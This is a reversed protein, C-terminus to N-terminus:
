GNDKRRRQREEDIQRDHMDSGGYDKAYIISGDNAYVGILKSKMACRCNYVTEGPAHPDGPYRLKNGNGDTFRANEAVEQGDMSLHWDRTREDGTAIWIKHMIAGQKTLDDYRDQLARNETETVLTRATRVASVKNNKVIPLIRKSIQPISEGLLLGQLVSMNISRTNWARDKIVNLRRQPLSRGSLGDSTLIPMALGLALVGAIPANFNRLYVGEVVANSYEMAVANMQALLETTRDVMKQFKPDNFTAERLASQWADLAGKKEEGTAALYADYLRKLRKDAKSMYEDWMGSIEREVAAYVGSIREELAALEADTWKRAESAM